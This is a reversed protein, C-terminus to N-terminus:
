WGRFYLKRRLGVSRDALSHMRIVASHPEQKSKCTNTVTPSYRESPMVSQRSTEATSPAKRLQLSAAAGHCLRADPSPSFSSFGPLLPREQGVSPSV